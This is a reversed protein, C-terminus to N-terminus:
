QYAQLFDLQARLQQETYLTACHVLRGQCYSVFFPAAHQNMLQQAVPNQDATLRLFAIDAYAQNTGFLEFIPQLQECIACQIATFKVLVKAHHHVLRRLGADNTDIIGM